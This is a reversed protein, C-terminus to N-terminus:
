TTFLSIEDIASTMGAWARLEMKLEMCFAYDGWDESIFQKKDVDHVLSIERWGTEYDKRYYLRILKHLHVKHIGEGEDSFTIIGEEDRIQFSDETVNTAFFVYYTTETCLEAPLKGTTSFIIPEGEILGHRALLVENTAPSFTVEGGNTVSTPFGAWYNQGGTFGGLAGSLGEPVRYTAQLIRHYNIIAKRYTSRINRDRYFVRTQIYAGSFLNYPHTKDIGVKAGHKWSIYVDNDLVCIAGIDLDNMGESMVYDMVFVRPFTRSNVTGMSYVGQEIPNGLRNSIGILPIGNFSAVANPYVQVADNNTFEGGIRRWLELTQGNYFYVNARKGAIVYVYNDVHVFANISAEAIEDEITWSESWTNWRFIMASHVVSSVETGILLDIDIKGLCRVNHRIPLDLAWLVLVNEVQHIYHGDGIFLVNNQVIMPHYKDNSVGYLTLYMDTQEDAVGVKLVGDTGTQIVHIHYIGGKKYIIEDDFWIRNVGVSLDAAAVTETAIVNNSMDHITVTVSTTPVVGLNIAVGTGKNLTPIYLTRKTADESISTPLTYDNDAGGMFFSDGCTPDVNLYGYEIVYDGWDDEDLFDVQIRYLVNQTAFYLFGDFECAGLIESKGVDSTVEHRLQWETDEWSWIKGSESSFAYLKDDSCTVMVQVFEDIDDGATDMVRRNNKIIGVEDHVNVGVMKWLSDQTGLIRSESMGGMNWNRISIPEQQKM